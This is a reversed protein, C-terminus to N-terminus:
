PKAATGSAGLLAKLQERQTRKRALYEQYREFQEPRLVGRLKATLEPDEIEQSLLKEVAAEREPSGAKSRALEEREADGLSAGPHVNASAVLRAVEDRQAPDLALSGVLSREENERQRERAQESKAKRYTEYDRRQAATFLGEIERQIAFVDEPGGAADGGGLVAAGMSVGAKAQRALLEGLKQKQAPTLKLAADLEELQTHVQRDLVQQFGPSKLVQDLKQRASETDAATSSTKAPPPAPAPPPVEVVPPQFAGSDIPCGKDPKKDEKKPEKVCDTASKAGSKTASTTSSTPGGRLAGIAGLAAGGVAVLLAVIVWPSPGTRPESEAM